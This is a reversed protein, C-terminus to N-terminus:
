FKKLDFVIGRCYKDGGEIIDFTEHAIDTEYIWSYGEKDWVAKIFHAKEKLKSFYPCRDDECENTLVGRSIIYVKTGNYCGVEDAIGGSLCMLDDSRGFVVVINNKRADSLEDDTIENLYPRGNLLLALEKADM